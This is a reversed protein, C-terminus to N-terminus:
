ERETRVWGARKGALFRGYLPLKWMLYLPLRLLTSPRLWRHGEIAWNVLVGSLATAITATLIAFPLWNGTLAAIAALLAAISVCITILLALPPVLLHLGLLVAKRDMRVIGHGLLPLGHVAAVALFGHEWRSRQGLTAQESAPPSLVSAQELFLPAEASRALDVTLALDEVINGTALPMRVFVPWPFAMGTGTLIAGGGARCTGRQRVVNKIWLAFNSIQVKPSADHDPEFVYRAQVAAQVSCACRALAIISSPDSYCDADMVIACEPPASRLHDRGFALAYGKGRQEANNREVVEFGQERALRATEDTCNDAVVLARTTSALVPRLRELNQTIIAAENHAPILICTDPMAEGLDLASTQRIGLWVECAFVLLLLTPIAAFFWSLTVLAEHM